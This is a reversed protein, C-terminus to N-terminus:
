CRTDQIIPYHRYKTHIELVDIDTVRMSTFFTAVPGFHLKSTHVTPVFKVEHVLTKRNIPLVM